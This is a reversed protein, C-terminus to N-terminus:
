FLNNQVWTSWGYIAIYRINNMTNRFSDQTHVVALNYSIKQIEPVNWFNETNPDNNKVVDWLKYHNVKDYADELAIRNFDDPLFSFDGPTSGNDEPIINHVRPNRTYTFNEPISFFKREFGYVDMRTTSNKETYEITVPQYPNLNGDIIKVIKPARGIGPSWIVSDGINISNIPNTYYTDMM